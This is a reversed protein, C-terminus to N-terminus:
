SAAPAATPSTLDLRVVVMPVPVGRRTALEPFMLHPGSLVFGFEKLFRGIHLNDAYHAAWVTRFGRIRLVDLVGRFASQPLGTRHVSKSFCIGHLVGSVNTVPRFGIGGLLGPFRPDTIAWYSEFRIREWILDVFAERTAPSQDDLSADPYEQILDWLAKAFQAAELPLPQVSEIRM